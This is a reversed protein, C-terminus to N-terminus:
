LARLMAQVDEDKEKQTKQGATIRARTSVYENVPAATPSSDIIPLVVGRNIIPQPIAYSPAVPALGGGGMLPKAYKMGANRFASLTFRSTGDQSAHYITKWSYGNDRLEAIAEAFYRVYWAVSRGDIRYARVSVKYDQIM